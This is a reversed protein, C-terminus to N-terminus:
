LRKFSLKNRRDEKHKKNLKPDASSGAIVSISTSTSVFSASARPQIVKHSVPPLTEEMEVVATGHQISMM